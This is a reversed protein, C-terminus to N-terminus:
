GVSGVVEVVIVEVGAMRGSDEIGGQGEDNSAVERRVGMVVVVVAEVAKHSDLVMRRVDLIRVGGELLICTGEAGFDVARVADVTTLDGEVRRRVPVETSHRREEAEKEAIAVEAFGL